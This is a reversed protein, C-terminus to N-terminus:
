GDVKECKYQEVEGEYRIWFANEELCATRFMMITDLVPDSKKKPKPIIAAPADQQQMVPTALSYTRATQCGVLLVLVVMTGLIAKMIWENM